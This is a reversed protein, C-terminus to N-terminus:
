AAAPAAQKQARRRKLFIAVSGALAAAILGTTAPEPIAMGTDGALIAAGSDQYAFDHITLTQDSNYTVSVWGYNAGNNLSLGIYGTSGPSWASTKGSEALMVYSNTSFQLDGALSSSISFNSGLKAAADGHLGTLSPDIVTRTATNSSYIYPNLSNTYLFKFYFSYGSLRGGSNALALHDSGTGVFMFLRDGASITFDHADTYIITAKAAPVVALAIPALPLATRTLRGLKHSSSAM